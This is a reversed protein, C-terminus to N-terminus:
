LFLLYSKLGSNKVRVKGAKRLTNILVRLESFELSRSTKIESIPVMGPNNMKMFSFEELIEPSLGGSEIAVGKPKVPESETSESAINDALKRFNVQDPDDRHYESLKSKKYIEEM